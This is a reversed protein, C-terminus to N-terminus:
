SDSGGEPSGRGAAQLAMYTAMLTSCLPGSPYNGDSSSGFDHIAKFKAQASLHATFALVAALAIITRKM